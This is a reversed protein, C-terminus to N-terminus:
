VEAAHLLPSSHGEINRSYQVPELAPDTYAATLRDYFEGMSPDNQDERDKKVLCQM